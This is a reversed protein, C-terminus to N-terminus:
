TDGVEKFRITHVTINVTTNSSQVKKSIWMYTSQIEENLFKFVEEKTVKM